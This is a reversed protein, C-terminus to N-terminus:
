SKPKTSQATSAAHRASLFSLISLVGLLVFSWIRRGSDYDGYFGYREPSDNWELAACCFSIAGWVVYLTLLPWTWWAGYKGVVKAHFGYLITYVLTGGVIVGGIIVAVPLFGDITV